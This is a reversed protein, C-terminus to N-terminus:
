IKVFKGMVPSNNVWIRYIYIGPSLFEVDLTSLIQNSDSTSNLIQVGNTSYIEIANITGDGKEVTFTILSQVPNPIVRISSTVDAVSVPTYAKAREVAKLANVLGYGYIANPSLDGPFEFCDIEITLPTCTSEIIDEIIDVHGAILPNASIILAVLGAVHPGSMSTGSSNVLAGGRVVSRVNVGPAVVNPKLRFTSDVTVPGKSSFGAIQTEIDTAGVSFSSEFLAPPANIGGCGLGGDNGASAVVVIGAARTNNIVEGILFFNTPNCGEDTNCYWSNNIVHPAKSPNPNLGQLDLPAIFWEFCEIYSTLSGWGRDMNRCAIWSAGPAVGMSSEDDQGVMTGMTHTGHNNDDCPELSNYGCPNAISDPYPLALKDHVADFWNYNHDVHDEDTYGRYKSKIPSVTWDYGTDQGAVVVGQGTIGLQWVSDAKIAKIGWEPEGNRASPTSLSRETIPEQLMRYSGNSIIKEVDNRSALQYVLTIDSKVKIANVVWYRHYTVQQKDLIQKIANQSKLAHSKLNSYVYLGKEEKTKFILSKNFKMRDKLVVVYEVESKKQFQQILADDIKSLYGPDNIAYATGSLFVLLLVLSKTMDFMQKTFTCILDKQANLFDNKDCIFNFSM